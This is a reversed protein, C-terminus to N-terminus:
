LVEWGTRQIIRVTLRGDRHSAIILDLDERGLEAEEASRPGVQEVVGEAAKAM